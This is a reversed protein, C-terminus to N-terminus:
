VREPWPKNIIYQGTLVTSGTGNSLTIKYNLAGRNAKSSRVRLCGEESQEAGKLYDNLTYTNRSKFSGSTEIGITEAKSWNLEV